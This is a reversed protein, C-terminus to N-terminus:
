NIDSRVRECEARTPTDDRWTLLEREGIFNKLTGKIRFQRQEPSTTTSLLYTPAPWPYDSWPPPYIEYGREGHMAGAILRDNTYTWSVDLIRLIEFPITQEIMRKEYVFTRKTNPPANLTITTDVTSDTKFDRVITESETISTRNSANFKWDAGFVKLGIDGGVVTDNNVTRQLTVTTGETVNMRIQRRVETTPAATCNVLPIIQKQRNDALVTESAEGRIYTQSQEFVSFIWHTAIWERCEMQSCFSFPVGPMRPSGGQRFRFSFNGKPAAGALQQAM